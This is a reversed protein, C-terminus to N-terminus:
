RMRDRVYRYYLLLGAGLLLLVIGPLFMQLTFNDRSVSGPETVTFTDVHMDSLGDHESCVLHFTGKVTVTTGTQGYRGYTDVKDADITSVYLQLTAPTAEPLASITLWCKGSAAEGRICDGVVEGTVQVTQNDFYTDSTNLAYIDTDYIFSSDPLQQPNVTNSDPTEQNETDVQGQANTSPDALAVPAWALGSAGAVLAFILLAALAVGRVGSGAVSTAAESKGRAGRAESEGLGVLVRSKGLGAKAELKGLGTRVSFRAFRRM